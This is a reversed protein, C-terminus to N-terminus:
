HNLILDAVKEGMEVAYNTGRDLSLRSCILWISMKLPTLIASCNKFLQGSHDAPCFFGFFILDIIQSKYDKNIKILLPDYVKLLEDKGMKMFPHDQPVYNGLYLLHENNYYKKDM